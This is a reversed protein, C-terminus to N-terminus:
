VMEGLEQGGFQANIEQRVRLRDTKPDAIIRQQDHRAPYRAEIITFDFIHQAPLASHEIWLLNKDDGAM